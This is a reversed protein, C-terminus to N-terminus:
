GRKARSSRDPGTKDVREIGQYANEWRVKPVHLRFARVLEVIRGLYLSARIVRGDTSLLIFWLCAQSFQVEVVEDWHIFIRGRWPSDLQVGENSIVLRVRFTELLMLSILISVFLLLVLLAWAAEKEDSFIFALVVLAAPILALFLAFGRMFKGHHLIELGPVPEIPSLQRGAILAFAVYAVAAGLLIAILGENM